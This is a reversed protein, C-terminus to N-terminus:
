WVAITVLAGCEALTAAAGYTDGTLGGLVKAAHRCFLMGAAFGVAWAKIGLTGWPAILVIAVIVAAVLTTRRDAFDHFAKGLGMPRAYPFEVIAVAAVFRGIIPAIFAAMPLVDPPMSFFASWEVLMLVTFAMVANAGVRSDKMIALIKERERGSFIGDASDMFGDFFIGGTLVVSLALLLAAAVGSPAACLKTLAVASTFYVAGLMAGVLPFFKVSAGCNKESWLDEGVSVSFRTLFQIAVALGNM